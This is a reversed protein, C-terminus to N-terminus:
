PYGGRIKRTKGIKEIWGDTSREIISRVWWRKETSEVLEGGWRGGGEM